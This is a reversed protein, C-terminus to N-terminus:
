WGYELLFTLRKLAAHATVGDAPESCPLPKYRQSLRRKSILHTLDPDQRHLSKSRAFQLGPKGASAAELAVELYAEVYLSLFSYRGGALAAVCLAGILHTGVSCPILSRLMSRAEKEGTIEIAPRLTANRISHRERTCGACIRCRPNLKTFPPESKLDASTVKDAQDHNGTGL